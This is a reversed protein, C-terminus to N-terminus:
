VSTILIVPSSKFFTSNWPKYKKIPGEGVGLLATLSQSLSLRVSVQGATCVQHEISPGGAPYTLWAPLCLMLYQPCFELSVFALNHEIGKLLIGQIQSKLTETKGTQIDPLCFFKRTLFHFVSANCKIQREFLIVALYSSLVWQYYKSCKFMYCRYRQSITLFAFIFFYIWTDHAM